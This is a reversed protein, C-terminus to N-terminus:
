KKVFPKETAYDQSEKFDWDEDSSEEIQRMLRKRPRKVEEVSSESHVDM